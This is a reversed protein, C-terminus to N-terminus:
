AGRIARLLAVAFGSVDAQIEDDLGGAIFRAAAIPGPGDFQSFDREIVDLAQEVAPDPILLSLGETVEPIGIARWVYFLDYADKNETREGFALAKLVTFAGPGCVCIDRSARAGSPITDTLRRQRRDKFALELGPTVVAGFDGELHQISGPPDTQDTSPILFDITVRNGSDIFWRQPTLNGQENSDLEFGANQLHSGLEQYRQFDFMGLSIGLDLDMTGAHADQGPPLDQQDVLLSPVLGGVVVLEDLLGGLKTSLFLCARRVQQLVEPDYGGSTDPKRMM